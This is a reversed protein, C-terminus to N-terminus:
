GRSRYLVYSGSSGLALDYRGDYLWSEEEEEEDANEAELKDLLYVSAIGAILTLMFPVKIDHEEDGWHSFMFFISAPFFMFAIFSYVKSVPWIKAVVWLNGIISVVACILFLMMTALEELSNALRSPM